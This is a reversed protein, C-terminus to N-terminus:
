FIFLCHNCLNLTNCFKLRFVNEFVRINKIKQINIEFGFKRLIIQLLAQNVMQLFKQNLQSASETEFRTLLADRKVILVIEDIQNKIVAYKFAMHQDVQFDACKIM